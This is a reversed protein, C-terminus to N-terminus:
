ALYGGTLVYKYEEIENIERGEHRTFFDNLAEKIEEKCDGKKYIRELSYFINPLWDPCGSFWISVNALLASALEVATFLNKKSKGKEKVAMQLFDNVKEICLEKSDSFVVGIFVKILSRAAKRVEQNSDQLFPPLIEDFIFLFQNKSFVFLHSLTLAHLFGVFNLKSTWPMSNQVAVFQGKILGEFFIENLKEGFNQYHLIGANMIIEKGIHVFKGNNIESLKSDVNCIDSFRDTMFRIIYSFYAFNQSLLHFLILAAREPAEEKQKDFVNLFPLSAIQYSENDVEKEQQYSKTFSIRCALLRAFLVIDEIKFKKLDAFIPIVLNNMVRLYEKNFLLGANRYIILTFSLLNKLINENLNEHLKKFQEEVIEYLWLNRRYDWNLVISIAMDSIAGNSGKQTILTTLSPVLIEDIVIKRDNQSWHKSARSIAAVLEALCALHVPQVEESKSDILGIMKLVLSKTHKVFNM